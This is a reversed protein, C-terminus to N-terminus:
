ALNVVRVGKDNSIEQLSKNGTTLKFIDDRGVKANFDGLLMKTRYKPFKNFIHEMEEYFSSKLMMVQIKTQCSCESCHYPTGLIKPVPAAM